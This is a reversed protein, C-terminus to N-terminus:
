GQRAMGRLEGILGLAYAEKWFLEMAALEPEGVSYHLLSGLYEHARAVDWGLRVAYTAVIEHIRGANGERLAKLRAPLDGLDTEELALWTAFVFPRGTMKHWAEGLDMQYPYAEASPEQTVVKDGILLMCERQEGPGAQGLPVVEPRTGYLRAFLVRMLNVSTHSDTDAYVRTVKGLPGRSFVRVTLTRGACCIGGVPVVKLKEKSLQFDIVPCLAIKVEQNLLLDLLRSPVEFRVPGGLSDGAGDILPKSNLFSVCGVSSPGGSVGM